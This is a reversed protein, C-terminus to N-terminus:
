GQLLVTVLATISIAAVLWFFRTIAKITLVNEIVTDDIDSLKKELLDVRDHVRLKDSELGILKEEARALAIMTDTLSDIKAEIRVLRDEHLKCEIEM